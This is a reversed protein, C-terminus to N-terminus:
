QQHNQIPMVKSSGGTVVVGYKNLVAVAIKLIAGAAVLLLGINVDTGIQVLGGGLLLSGAENLTLSNNM